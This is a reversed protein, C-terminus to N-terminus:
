RLLKSLKTFDYGRMIDSTRDNKPFLRNVSMSSIRLDYAWKNFELTKKPYCSSQVKIKSDM